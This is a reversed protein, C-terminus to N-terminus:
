DALYEPECHHPRAALNGDKRIYFAHSNLFAEDTELECTPAHAGHLQRARVENEVTWRYIFAAKVQKVQKATLNKGKVLKAPM